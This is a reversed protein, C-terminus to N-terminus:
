GSPDVCQAASGDAARRLDAKIGRRHGGVVCVTGCFGTPIWRGKVLREFLFVTGFEGIVHALVLVATTGISEDAVLVTALANTAAIAVIVLGRQRRPFLLLCTIGVATAPWLGLGRGTQKV